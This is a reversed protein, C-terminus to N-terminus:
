VPQDFGHKALNHKLLWFAVGLLVLGFSDFIIFRIISASLLNYGDPLTFFIFSEGVLGVLQMTLAIGLVLRYKVPNWLTVLYPVNWMAFLIGTGRVAAAGPIGTLEFNHMFREPWLIFVLAAQLNWGTVIAILLRSLWLRSKEALSKDVTNM